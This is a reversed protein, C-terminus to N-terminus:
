LKRPSSKDGSVISLLDIINLRDEEINASSRDLSTGQTAKATIHLMFDKWDDFTIIHGQGVVQVMVLDIWHRSNIDRDRWEVFVEFRIKLYRVEQM